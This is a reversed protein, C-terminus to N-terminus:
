PAKEGASGGARAARAAARDSRRARFYAAFVRAAMPAAVEGGHGAREVLVAVVIEPKQAPAFAAFWSHTLPSGAVEASGTKGAVLIDPFRVCFPAQSGYGENFAAYATGRGPPPRHVVAIMGQKVTRLTEKSLPIRRPAAPEGLVLHPRPRRGDCAITSIMCAVQLPTVELVQGISVNVTDGRSWSRSRSYYRAEGRFRRERERLERAKGALEALRERLARSGDARETPASGPSPDQPERPRGTRASMRM